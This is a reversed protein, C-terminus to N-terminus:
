RLRIKSNPIALAFPTLFPQRKCVGCDKPVPILVLRWNDRCAYAVRWRIANFRLRYIAAFVTVQRAVGDRLFLHKSLDADLM